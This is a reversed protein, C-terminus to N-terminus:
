IKLSPIMTQLVPGALGNVFSKLGVFSISVQPNLRFGLIFQLEM